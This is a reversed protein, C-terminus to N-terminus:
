LPSDPDSFPPCPRAGDYLVEGGELDDTTGVGFVDEYIGTKENLKAGVFMITQEGFENIGKYGRAAEIKLTKKLEVIKELSEIPILYADVKKKAEDDTSRKYNDAWKVGQDLSIEIKGPFKEEAM